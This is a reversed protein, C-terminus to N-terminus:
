PCDPPAAFRRHADEIREIRGDPTLLITSLIVWQAEPDMSPHLLRACGDEERFTLYHEPLQTLIGFQHSEVIRTPQPETSGLGPVFAAPSECYRVCLYTPTRRAMAEELARGDPRVISGCDGGTDSSRAGDLLEIARQEPVVIEDGGPGLAFGPTVVVRPEMSRSALEVHLGCVIGWGHLMRNHLRDKERSYEQEAELDSASLLQGAFFRTRQLPVSGEVWQSELRTGVAGELSGAVPDAAGAPALASGLAVGIGLAALIAAVAISRSKM